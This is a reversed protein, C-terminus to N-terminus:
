DASEQEFEQQKTELQEQADLWQMETDELSSKLTAQDALIQKLHPKNEASYIKTDSLKEELLQLKKHSDAM